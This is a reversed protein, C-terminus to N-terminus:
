FTKLLNQCLNLINIFDNGSFVYYNVSNLLLIIKNSGICEMINGLRNDKCVFCNIGRYM